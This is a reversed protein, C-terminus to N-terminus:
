LIEEKGVSGIRTVLLLGSPFYMSTERELVSATRFVSRTKWCSHANQFKEFVVMEYSNNQIKSNLHLKIRDVFCKHERVALDSLSYGGPLQLHTQFIIILKSTPINIFEIPFM